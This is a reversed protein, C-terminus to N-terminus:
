EKKKTKKTFNLFIQFDISDPLPTYPLRAKYEYEHWKGLEFTNPYENMSKQVVLYIWINRQIEKSGKELIQKNSNFSCHSDPELKHM